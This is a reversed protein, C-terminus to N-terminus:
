ADRRYHTEAACAALYGCTDASELLRRCVPPRCAGLKGPLRQPEVRRRADRAREGAGTQKGAGTLAHLCRQSLTTAGRSAPSSCTGPSVFGIMKRDYPPLSIPVYHSLTVAVGAAALLCCYQLVLHAVLFVSRVSKHATLLLCTGAARPHPGQHARAGRPHHSGDGARLIGIALTPLADPM